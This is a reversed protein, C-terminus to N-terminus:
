SYKHTWHEGRLDILWMEAFEKDPKAMLNGGSCLSVRHDIEKVLNERDYEGAKVKLLTKRKEGTFWVEPELGENLRELEYTCRLAHMLFKHNIKGGTTHLSKGEKYRRLQSLLYGKYAKFLGEHLFEHKNEVLKPFNEEWTYREECLLGEYSYPNGKLLLNLYHKAEHLQVDGMSDLNISDKFGDLGIVKETDAVYVGRFDVDSTDTNLNYSHSGGVWLSLLTYGREKLYPNIESFKEFLCKGDCM